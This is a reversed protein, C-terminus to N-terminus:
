GYYEMVIGGCDKGFRDIITPEIKVRLVDTVKEDLGSKYDEIYRSVPIIAWYV